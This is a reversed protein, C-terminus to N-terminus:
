AKRRYISGQRARQETGPPAYTYDDRGSGIIRFVLEDFVALSSQIFESNERARHRIEEKLRDAEGEPRGGAPLKEIAELITQKQEMVEWLRTVDLNLLCDQEKGLCDRLNQLLAVRELATTKPDQCTTEM